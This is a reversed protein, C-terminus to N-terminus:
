QEPLVAHLSSSHSTPRTNPWQATKVPSRACLLALGAILFGQPTLTLHHPFLNTLIKERFLTPVAARDTAQPGQLHHSRASLKCLRMLTGNWPGLIVRAMEPVSQLWQALM